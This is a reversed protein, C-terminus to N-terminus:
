VKEAPEPIVIDPRCLKIIIATRAQFDKILDKRLQEIAPAVNKEEIKRFFVFWTLLALQSMQIFCFIAVWGTYTIKIM